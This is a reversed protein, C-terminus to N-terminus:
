GFDFGLLHFCNLQHGERVLCRGGLPPSVHSPMPEARPRRARGPACSGSALVVRIDFDWRGWLAAGLSLTVM